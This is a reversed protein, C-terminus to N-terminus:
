IEYKDLIRKFEDFTKKPKYRGSKVNSVFDNISVLADGTAELIREEKDSIEDTLVAIIVDEENYLFGDKIKFKM